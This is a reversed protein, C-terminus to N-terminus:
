FCRKVNSEPSSSNSEQAVAMRESHTCTDISIGVQHVSLEGVERTATRCLQICVPLRAMPVDVALGPFSCRYARHPVARPQETRMGGVAAKFLFEVPGTDFTEHIM